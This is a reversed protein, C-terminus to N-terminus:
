NSVETCYNVFFNGSTWLFITVSNQIFNYIEIEILKAM